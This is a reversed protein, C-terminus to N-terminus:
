SLRMGIEGEFLGIMAWGPVVSLMMGLLGAVVNRDAAGLIRSWAEQTLKGGSKTLNAIAKM